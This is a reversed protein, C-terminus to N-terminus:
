LQERENRSITPSPIAEDQFIAFGVLFTSRDM